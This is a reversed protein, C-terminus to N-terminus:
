IGGPSVVLKQTVNMKEVPSSPGMLALVIDTENVATSGADLLTQSM